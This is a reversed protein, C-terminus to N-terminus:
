VKRLKGEVVKLEQELKELDTMYKTKKRSEKRDAESEKPKEKPKPKKEPLYRVKAEPLLRKLKNILINIEKIKGKLESLTEVKERRQEKITEYKKLSIIIGRSMGLLERRLNKSDDIGVYYSKNEPKKKNGMM